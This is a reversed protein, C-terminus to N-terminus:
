GKSAAKRVKRFINLGIGVFGVALLFLYVPNDVMYMLMDGSLKMVSSVGGLIKEMANVSTESALVVNWM